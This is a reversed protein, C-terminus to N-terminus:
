HKVKSSVAETVLVRGIKIETVSETAIKTAIVTAIEVGIRIEDVIEILRSAIAIEVGIDTEIEIAMDIGTEDKAVIAIEIETKVVTEIETIETVAESGVRRMFLETGEVVIITMAEVVIIKM